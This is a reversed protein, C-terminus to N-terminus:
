KGATAANADAQGAGTTTTTAENGGATSSRAASTATSGGETTPTPTEAAAGAGTTASAGTTAGAAAGAAAGEATIANAPLLVKPLAPLALAHTRTSPPPSPCALRAACAAARACPRSGCLQPDGGGRSSGCM